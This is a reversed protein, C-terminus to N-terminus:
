QTQLGPNSDPILVILLLNSKNNKGTKIAEETILHLLLWLSNDYTMLLQYLLAIRGQRQEIITSAGLM